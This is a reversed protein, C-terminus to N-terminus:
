ITAIIRTADSDGEKAKRAIYEYMKPSSAILRANAEWQERREYQPARCISLAQGPHQEVFVGCNAKGDELRWYFKWPGPTHEAMNM